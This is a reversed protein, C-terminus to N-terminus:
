LEVLLARTKEAEFVDGIREYRELARELAVRAEAPRGGALLAHAQSSHALAHVWPFDTEYAYELASRALEAAEEHDARDAAIRARIARGFAFNVVDDAGGTEEGEVACREAQELDGSAYLFQGLRILMTSLFSTQELERMEDAATRMVEVAEPLRGQRFLTEAVMHRTMQQLLTLGLEAVIDEARRHQDLSEDLRGALEMLHADIRHAAFDALAGTGRVPELRARVEAPNFPGHVLVATLAFLGAARRGQSGAREAHVLVHEVAKLAPAARSHLWDIWYLLYWAQALGAEDGAEDFLVLAEGAVRRADEVVLSHPDRHIQIFLREIQAHMGAVPDGHQELEAIVESRQDLTGCNELVSLREVLVSVRGPDDAPLLALARALLNDAAAFDGRAFSRSGAAALRAAARQEISRDESGLERRYKAAQELHYGLIEDLEVLRGNAEVWDAFRLHLEARTEKPLADYAADRILLHRFRYADDDEPTPHEPRILEKRVLGVLEADIGGASGNVLQTVAARHFIVGEVSGREIVKRESAGLRDLRAQILAHITSPARVDGGDRALALMEEVYLPNGGATDIITACTDEPVGEPGLVRLLELSETATLPELLFTTANLKGGAWTPREDLLEPRAICLILIPANRSLDAVHDILDLLMPEAWHLDDFVVVLPREAAIGELRRRVALLLENSHVSARAIAEITDEAGLQRLIEVLPWFTIGDGYDLCRGRAVTADLGGLFESVLRSKGVGAAGLLTFLYCSRESVANRYAQELLSLERTRGVLPTDFRRAIGSAERDLTVVRYAAVPEPKGKAQVSVLEVCVADRVLRRTEEGILVDGAGANQELRAGVNVADGTVLTEGDGAVVEGTNVGIRAQLGLAPVAERMEWAARVARLADDEHAIPVGFVAMVADGVFKEVTGGHREVIMRMQEYYGRMTARLAEPDTRDGLETSGTLDCFLVTVVKRVDRGPLSATLPVGCGGCFRFGDPNEQGCAACVSM